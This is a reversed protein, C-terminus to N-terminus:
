GRNQSRRALAARFRRVGALLSLRDAYYDFVMNGDKVNLTHPGRVGKFKLKGLQSERYAEASLQEIRFVLIGDGYEARGDQGLRLRGDSTALIAGAMRAGAPSVCIPSCPHERFPGRLADSVWLRLVSGGDAACNAFLFIKGEQAYLTPDLLRPSGPLDLVGIPELGGEALRYLMPASWESMEPLVYHEGEHSFTAPYSYHGKGDSLTVSGAPSIHLIEGLGTSRRLAEVLVGGRSPHHFPDALFRYAAPREVISWRGPPPFRSAGIIQAESELSAEAVRWEKEVFAGYCLRQITRAFREAGFRAVTANGPLRFAKGDGRLPLRSGSLLNRVATRILLPSTRYAELMTARYSHPYVRTEGFAVIEGADLKNSLIQVVQGVTTRGLQIEHFGAPRGRFERPDGHHYSLIPVPLEGEPPIRLLGMGFKLMFEPREERIRELLSAPLRQWSGDQEAEFDFVDVIRIDAPLATRATLRTRLALLNLLYYLAHRPSRRSPKTNTCNYVIFEAAEGFERLCSAQWCAVARNDILLGIKLM